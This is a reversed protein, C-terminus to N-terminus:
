NSCNHRHTPPCQERILEDCEDVRYCDKCQVGRSPGPVPSPTTVLSTVGKSDILLPIEDIKDILSPLSPSKHFSNKLGNDISKTGVPTKRGQGYVLNEGAWASVPNTDILSSMKTALLSPVYKDTERLLQDVRSRPMSLAWNIVGPLYPKFEADLDRRAEPPVVRDFRVTIRRQMIAGSYDSSSIERNAAILVM